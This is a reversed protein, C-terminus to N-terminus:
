LPRKSIQAYPRPYAAPTKGIKRVRILPHTCTEGEGTLSIEEVAGTRGGMLAIARKAAALEYEANKGKMAIMEGGVRVLPLCLETLIRLEAVARATVVDFNERLTGDRGADEARICLTRVQTLGLMDATGRVYQVRKETSDIALISVDDRLIAIPLTPFGAGCGVDAMRAGRPLRTALAACDAYHRLVIGAPDTLATLNYKENEALMHLTLRYFAEVRERSLLHGMGNAAFTRNLLSLFSKEEPPPPSTRKTESM